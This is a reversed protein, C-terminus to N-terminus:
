ASGYKFPLWQLPEPTAVRCSDELHFFEDFLVDLSNFEQVAAIVTAWLVNGSTFATFLPFYSGAGSATTVPTGAFLQFTM